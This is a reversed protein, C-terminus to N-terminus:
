GNPDENGEAPQPAEPRPQSAREEVAAATKVLLDGAKAVTSMPLNELKRRHVWQALYILESADMGRPNATSVINQLLRQRSMERMQIATKIQASADNIHTSSANNAQLNWFNLHADGVKDADALYKAVLPQISETRALVAVIQGIGRLRSALLKLMEARQAETIGTAQGSPLVYTVGALAQELNDLFLPTYATHLFDLVREDTVHQFIVKRSGLIDEPDVNLGPFDAGYRINMSKVNLDFRPKAAPNRKVRAPLYRAVLYNGLDQVFGHTVVADSPITANEAATANAETANEELTDNTANTVDVATTTNVGSPSVQWRHPAVETAEPPPAPHKRQQYFWYGAGALGLLLLIVLIRKM